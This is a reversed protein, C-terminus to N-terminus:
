SVQEVPQRCTTDRSGDRSYSTVTISIWQRLTAAILCQSSQSARHTSYAHATRLDRCGQALDITISTLGREVLLLDIVDSALDRPVLRILCPNCKSLIMGRLISRLRARDFWRHGTIGTRHRIVQEMHRADDTIDHPVDVRNAMSRLWHKGKTGRDAQHTHETTALHSIGM